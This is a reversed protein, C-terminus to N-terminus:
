PKLIVKLLGPEQRYLRDFWEPGEALPPTASIMGRVDISGDALARICAPYEGNSGCTGLIDLERTVAAQLPFDVQPSLNGVLVVRGGKRVGAIATQVPASAGVVEFAVDAGVGDSSDVLRKQLDPAKANVVEDAGHEKALKLRSEDLDVAILHGCGALRASQIVLQGIMGAGVVLVRQGLSLQARAVAHFAISVAEIMAAHEFSLADPLRYCILEPVAVLEAFAGHQRYDGCSVGLVRRDECLNVRGMRCFRCRGCYVTSDFTVRDGAKFATVAQGVEAVMGSAEHGMILPPIRRGSSGDFGHIDSGCIGCARVRVLISDPRLEPDPLDTLELKKYEKLLLAKMKRRLMRGAKLEGRLSPRWRPTWTMVEM